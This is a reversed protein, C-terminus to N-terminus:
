DPEPEGENEANGAEQGDNTVPGDDDNNRLDNSDGTRPETRRERVPRGGVWQHLWGQEVLRQVHDTPVLKVVEGHRFEGLAVDAFDRNAVFEKKRKSM